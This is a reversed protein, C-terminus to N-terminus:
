WIKRYKTTRIRRHGNHIREDKVIVVGNEETQNYYDGQILRHHLTPYLRYFNRWTALNRKLSPVRMKYGACSAGGNENVNYAGKNDRHVIKAEYRYSGTSPEICHRKIKKAM